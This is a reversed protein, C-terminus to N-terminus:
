AGYLEPPRNCPMLGKKNDKAAMGAAHLTEYQLRYDGELM